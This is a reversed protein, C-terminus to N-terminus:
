STYLGVWDLSQGQSKNITMAYAIIVPFQRRSLKFPWPSQSPSMDMQPIYIVKGNNNDGMLKAELVHTAMKTVILRTWNCLGQSQDINRMLMIPTGVKLKLHHNPLSSTRLSSLFEPSLVQLINSDHIESRDVSNSSYYDRIEGPMMALVHDNIKDVIDLTSALIARNKLYDCSQYCNLFYPYTSEVIALIPDNFNTILLEPPIDINAYGDNPKSIRGEGIKLLWDSFDVIEKKDQESPGCIYSANITSHIIESRSGGPVVPLIQRFDGGFIVVKGGFVSDSNSYNSMVDKLTRDLTEFCYKHAMPAEDWIILNAERLLGASDDNFNIKCTSNEVCPVPLKFKSHATRGGPLLLSAIGSTAVTLCIEHKSRLVSALTRWMYTKSTGGYGHLFFVGGKQKNVVDMIQDYIKRQEDTLCKFLKDFEAKMDQINYQREDYILRKGLQQIVYGNPYPIPKYDHLTRHNLQLMKEIEILTLQQIAEDPLTLDPNNAILKQEYLLGDSLIIWSEKEKLACIYERDDDLFGMAFCAERFTEYQTESVKRIEEYSTLGKAVTLM